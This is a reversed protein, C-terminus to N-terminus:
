LKERALLLDLRERRLELQCALQVQRDDDM